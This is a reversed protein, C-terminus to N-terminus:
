QNLGPTDRLVGPDRLLGELRENTRIVGPRHLRETQRIWPNDPAFDHADFSALWRPEIGARCVPRVRRPKLDLFYFTQAASPFRSKM